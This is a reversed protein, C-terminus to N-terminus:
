VLSCAYSLANLKLIRRLNWLILTNDDGGSALFTGDRSIAIKRILFCNLM